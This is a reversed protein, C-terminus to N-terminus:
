NSARSRSSRGPGSRCRTGRRRDVVKGDKDYAEVLAASGISGWLVLTVSSVPKPFRVEVPISENAMANLIGKAADEPAPLVDGARRGPEQDAPAVPRVRRGPGHLEADAQRDRGQRLHHDVQGDAAAAVALAASSRWASRERRADHSLGDGPRADHRDLPRVPRGRDGDAAADLRVPEAAPLQPERDFALHQGHRFGGGAFLTPLNTTSHANADGLNSGYLVMTRDLLTEGGEQVAKLGTFLDALLKMHWEDIVKLQTLKEEAKGHHSLNHYSDTITEGAIQVVPTGVSNLMLTIARTSDTEFALRALDYMVKCRTWTSRRAPRTPRRPQGQGDAQAQQEWGRSEQLRHELDRVSTFYQDLRARDRAGVNRRSTRRRTPSRTSSAGGPTSNASRRRSRARAHGAPLAPQVRRVGAGGAPHRRRHRTWSLSRGGNVALTLSPFRTLTGIREAIHQDLSITNRFSSSAPHPAATLFSIDSPHGGDVNPHSVGSFVTFDDRHEQLLKLYPSPTYDRGADKPFFPEPLLGLNNCIGFMRRPSRATPPRGRSRRAADRGPVAAGAGRGRRPPVAAALDAAAHLRVPGRVDPRTAHNM